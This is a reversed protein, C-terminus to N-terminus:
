IGLKKKILDPIIQQFIIDQEGSTFQNLFQPFSTNIGTIPSGNRSDVVDCKILYSPVTATVFGVGSRQVSFNRFDPM